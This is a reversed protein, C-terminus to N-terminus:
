RQELRRLVTPIREVPGVEAAGAQGPGTKRRSPLEIERPHTFISEDRATLLEVEQATPLLEPLPISPEISRDEPVSLASHCFPCTALVADGLENGCHPCILNM